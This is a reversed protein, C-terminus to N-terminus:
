TLMKLVMVSSVERCEFDSTTADPSSVRDPSIAQACVQIRFADFTFSVISAAGRRPVQKGGRGSDSQPTSGGVHICQTRGCMM